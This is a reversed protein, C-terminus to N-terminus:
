RTKNTRDLLLLPKQRSAADVSIVVWFVACIALIMYDMLFEEKIGIREMVYSYALANSGESHPIVGLASGM